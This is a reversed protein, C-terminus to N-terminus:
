TRRRRGLCILGAGAALLVGAAGVMQPVAQSGTFPLATATGTGRVAAATSGASPSPVASAGASVSPTPTPTPSAAAAVTTFTRDSGQVAQGLTTGIDAPRGAVLAYHYTVGASLGSVSASVPVDASGAPLLQSATRQGYSPTLGYVFYYDAPLGRPNVTGTLTASSGTVSSAAGTTATPAPPPLTVTATWSGSNDSYIDDNVALFLEGAGTLTTPGKGVEQWGGTTGIRGLLSWGSLGPALYTSPAPTAANQTSVGDPNEQQGFAPNTSANILGTASVTVSTLVLTGTDVVGTGGM